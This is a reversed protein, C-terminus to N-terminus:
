IDMPCPKPMFLNGRWSETQWGFSQARIRCCDASGIVSRSPLPAERRGALICVRCALRGSAPESGGGFFVSKHWVTVSACSLPGAGCEHRLSRDHVCTERLKRQFKARGLFSPGDCAARRVEGVHAVQSSVVSQQPARTWRSELRDASRKSLTSLPAERGPGLIGLWTDQIIGCQGSM